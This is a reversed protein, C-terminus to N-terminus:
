GSSPNRVFSNLLRESFPNMNINNVVMYNPDGFMDPSMKLEPLGERPPRILSVFMAVVVFIAPLMIQSFFGKRSRRAHHFRKVMIAKHQQLGLRVGFVKSEHCFDLGGAFFFYRFFLTNGYV